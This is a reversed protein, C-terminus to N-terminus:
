HKIQTIFLWVISHNEFLIGCLQGRLIMYRYLFVHPKCRKTLLQDQSTQYNVFRAHKETAMAVHQGHFILSVTTVHSEKHNYLTYGVCTADEITFM